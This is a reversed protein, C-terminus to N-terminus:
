FQIEKSHEEIMQDIADKEEIFWESILAGPLDDHLIRLALATVEPNKTLVIRAKRLAEVLKHAETEIWDDDYDREKGSKERRARAWTLGLPFSEGRQQYAQKLEIATRRMNSVTGPSVSAKKATDSISRDGELVIRWAAEYKDTETMPLKDRSNMTLAHDRAQKLTGDFVIAPIQKRWEATDYAALRHHGDVVYYALGVPFVTIPELAEATDRVSGAMKLIHKQRQDTNRKDIRWQFVHGAVCISSRRLRQKGTTAQSSKAGRLKREIDAVSEGTDTPM